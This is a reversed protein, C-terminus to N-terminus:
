KPEKQLNIQELLEAARLWDIQKQTFYVYAPDFPGIDKCTIEIDIAISLAEDPTLQLFPGIRKSILECRMSLIKEM